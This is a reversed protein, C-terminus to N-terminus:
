VKGLYADLVRHDSQVEDPTGHLMVEGHAMVIVSDSLDMVLDMNHEVIFFTLGNGNLERIRAVM